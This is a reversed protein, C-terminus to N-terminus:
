KNAATIEAYREDALRRMDGLQEPHRDTYKRARDCALCQRKGSALASRRLNPEMLAHGRICEQKNRVRDAVNRDHTDWRLNELRNDSASDNFHCAEMGEPCPGVFAELVLRHVAAYVADGSSLTVYIYGSRAAKGQLEVGRQRRSTGDRTVIVRDVSRVRGETSVEYYGEYGVVPLWVEGQTHQQM